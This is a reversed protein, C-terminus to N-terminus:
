TGGLLDTVSAGPPLDLAARLAARGRALRSTVTGPALGTKQAIEAYSLGEMARMRLLVQQDQPLAALAELAEACGLRTVGDSGRPASVEDPAMEAPQALSGRRYARHRLTAFAYARLDDIPPQDTAGEAAMAMRSWVRLLTEQVLDDAEDGTRTLRRATRQMDAMLATFTRSLPLAATADKERAPRSPHHM